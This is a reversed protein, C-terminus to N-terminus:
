SVQKGSSNERSQIDTFTTLTLVNLHHQYNTIVQIESTFGEDSLMLEGMIKLLIEM